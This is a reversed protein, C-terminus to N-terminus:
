NQRTQCRRGSCGRRLSETFKEGACGKRTSEREVGQYATHTGDPQVPHQGTQSIVMRRACEMLALSEKTNRNRNRSTITRPSSLRLLKFKTLSADACIRSRQSGLVRARPSRLLRVVSKGAASAAM